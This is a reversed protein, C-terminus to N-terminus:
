QNEFTMRGNVDSNGELSRVPNLHIQRSDIIRPFTTHRLPNESDIASWVEHQLTTDKVM